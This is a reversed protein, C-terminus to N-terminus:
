HSSSTIQNCFFCCFLFSTNLFSGCILYNDDKLLIIRYSPSPEKRQRFPIEERPRHLSQLAIPYKSTKFPQNCIATRKIERPWVTEKKIGKKAFNPPPFYWTKQIYLHSSCNWAHKLLHKKDGTIALPSQINVSLRHIDRKGPTLVLTVASTNLPKAPLGERTGAVTHGRQMTVDHSMGDGEEWM